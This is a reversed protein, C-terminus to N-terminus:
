VRLKSDTFHRHIKLSALARNAFDGDSVAHKEFSTEMRYTTIAHLLGHGVEVLPM